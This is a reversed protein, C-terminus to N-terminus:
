SEKSKIHEIMMQKMKEGREGKAKFINENIM